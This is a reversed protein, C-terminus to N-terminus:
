FLKLAFMHQEVSGIKNEVILLCKCAEGHHYIANQLKEMNLLLRRNSYSQFGASLSLLFLIFQNGINKEIDAVLGYFQSAMKTHEAGKCNDSHTDVIVSSCLVTDSDM